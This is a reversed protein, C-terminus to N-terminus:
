SAATVASCSRSSAATSCHGSPTPSGAHTDRLGGPNLMGTENDVKPDFPPPVLRGARRAGLRDALGAALLAEPLGEVGAARLGLHSPTELIAFSAM